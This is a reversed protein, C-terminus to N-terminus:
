KSLKSKHIPCLTPPSLLLTFEVPASLNSLIRKEDSFLLIVQEFRIGQLKLSIQTHQMLMQSPTPTHKTWGVM